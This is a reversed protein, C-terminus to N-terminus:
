GFLELGEFVDQSDVDEGMDAIYGFPKVEVWGAANGGEMYIWDSEGEKGLCVWSYEENLWYTFELYGSEIM